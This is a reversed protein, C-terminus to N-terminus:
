MKKLGPIEKEALTQLAKQQVQLLHGFGPIWTVRNDRKFWTWQRKAYRRTQMQTNAIAEELSMEGRACQLAQKYGLSEFPKAEPPYGMELIRRVEEILGHTFMARSRENLRVYLEERPPDLGLQVSTYGELREAGQAHLASMRQRTLLCVECARTLKNKDNPHIRAASHPDYRRLFRHLFGPRKQENATLRVRLEDDRRPGAFLGDTLARLYFGTGGAVIPLRGRAIIEHLKERALRAYDGATALDNPDLIDILHHPIGHQEAATVKATGIDFHRYLQLSDCNIIEGRLQEALFLALASKGSGTPGVIAVFSPNM